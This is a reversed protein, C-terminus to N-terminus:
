KRVTRYSRRDLLGDNKSRTLLECLRIIVEEQPNLPADSATVPFRRQLYATGDGMDIQYLYDDQKVLKSM